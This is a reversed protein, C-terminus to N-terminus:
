YERPKLEEINSFMSLFCTQKVLTPCNAWYERPKLEEIISSM